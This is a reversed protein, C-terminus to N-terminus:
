ASAAEGAIAFRLPQWAASLASSRTPGPEGFVRLTDAVVANVVHTNYATLSVAHTLAYAPRRSREGVTEALSTIIFTNLSVGDRQACLAARRHLGKSMRLVLRGSYDTSDLPEPIDQGQEIATEIWDIAVEELMELAEVASAGSAVCGPFELIEAGFMGENDPVVMRAYPRKLVDSAIM